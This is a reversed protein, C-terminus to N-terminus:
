ELGEMAAHDVLWQNLEFIDEYWQTTSDDKMCPIYDKAFAILKDAKILRERMERLAELDPSPKTEGLLAARNLDAQVEPLLDSFNVRDFYITPQSDKIKSILNVQPTPKCDDGVGGGGGISYQVIKLEGVVTEPLYKPTM